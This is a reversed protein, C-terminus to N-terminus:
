QEFAFDGSEMAEDDEPEGAPTTWDVVKPTSGVPPLPLMTSNVLFDLNERLVEAHESTPDLEALKGYIIPQLETVNALTITTPVISSDSSNIFSLAANQMAPGVLKYLDRLQQPGLSVLAELNPSIHLSSLAPAIISMHDRLLSQWLAQTPAAGTAALTLFQIATMGEEEEEEECEEELWSEDIVTREIEDKLMTVGRVLTFDAMETPDVDDLPACSQILDERAFSAFVENVLLKRATPRSAPNFQLMGDILELTQEVKSGADGEQPLKLNSRIFQKVDRETSGKEMHTGSIKSLYQRVNDHPVADIDEASPKGLRNLIRLLAQSARGGHYRGDVTTSNIALLPEAIVMEAIVCGAAWIDMSSDLTKSGFVIEPARYYRTVVYHSVNCSRVDSRSVRALGFDCIRLTTDAMNVLLNHPKIDRHIIDASHLGHLGHLMQHALWIVHEIQFQGRQHGSLNWANAHQSILQSLPMDMLETVIFVGYPSVGSRSESENGTPTTYLGLLHVLNPHNVHRLVQIERIVRRVEREITQWCMRKVAVSRGWKRDYCKAVMGYAGGGILDQQGMERQQGDPGETKFCYRPAGDLQELAGVQAGMEPYESASIM